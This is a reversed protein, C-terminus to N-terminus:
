NLLGNLRLSSLRNTTTSPHRAKAAAMPARTRQIGVSKKSPAVVTTTTTPEHELFTAAAISDAHGYWRAMIRSARTYDAYQKAIEDPKEQLDRHLKLVVAAAQKMAHSRERHIVKSAWHELGRIEDKGEVSDSTYTATIKSSSAWNQISKIVASSNNNQLLLHPRLEDELTTVALYEATRRLSELAKTATPYKHFASSATKAEYKFSDFDRRRWWVARWETASLDAIAPVEYTTNETEEAFRVWRPNATVTLSQLKTSSPSSLSECEDGGLICIREIVDEKGDRSTLKTADGEDHIENSSSLLVDGPTSFKKKEKQM